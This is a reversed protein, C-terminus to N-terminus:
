GLTHGEDTSGAALSMAATRPPIDMWAICLPLAPLAIDHHVYLNGTGEDYVHVELASHEDQSFPQM